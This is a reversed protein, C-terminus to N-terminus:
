KNLFYSIITTSNLLAINEQLNLFSDIFMLIKWLCLWNWLLTYEAQSTPQHKAPEAPMAPQKNPLSAAAVSFPINLFRLVKM